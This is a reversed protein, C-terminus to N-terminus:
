AQRVLWSAVQAIMGRQGPLGLDLGPAFGLHGGLTVRVDVSRSAATLSPTLTAFPVMPDDRGVLVLSEVSLGRLLPGAAQSAYYHAADDFGHRPAVIENDWTRLSSIAAARAISVPMDHRRAVASYMEVLGSLLHRLYPRRHWADIARAGADLDLPPCVAAVAHPPTRSLAAHRLAVHGGLSFGWVMVRRFAAVSPSALAADLDSILGAHYFDDGRLDAGRMNLRLCSAGQRLLADAAAIVYESDISGGLGHLVIVLADGPARHLAGSLTVEGMRPDHVSAEFPEGASVKRPSLTHRLFPAFTLVHGKM